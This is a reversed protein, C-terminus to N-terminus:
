ETPPPLKQTRNPDVIFYRQFAQKTFEWVKLRRPNDKFLVALHNTPFSQLDVTERDDVLSFRSKGDLRVTLLNGFIALFNRFHEAVNKRNNFYVAFDARSVEILGKGDEGGVAPRNLYAMGVRPERGTPNEIELASLIAWVEEMTEPIELEVFQLVQANHFKGLCVEEIERLAKSKGSNNPGVIVTVNPAAVELPPQGPASGGAFM